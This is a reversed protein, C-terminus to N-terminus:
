HVHIQALESLYHLILFGPMSCDMPDRLTPCLKSVLHCCYGNNSPCCMAYM